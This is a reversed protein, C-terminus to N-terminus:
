HDRALPKRLQPGRSSGALLGNPTEEGIQRDHRPDAAERELKDLAAEITKPDEHELGVVENRM